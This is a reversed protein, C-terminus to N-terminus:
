RSPAKKEVEFTTCEKAFAERERKLREREETVSAVSAVHDREHAANSAVVEHVKKEAERRTVDREKAVVGALRRLEETEGHDRVVSEKLASIELRLANLRLPCRVSHRRSHPRRLQTFM